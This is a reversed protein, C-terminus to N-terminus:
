SCVSAGPDRIFMSVCRVIWLDEVTTTPHKYGNMTEKWEHYGSDCLTMYGTLKTYTGTGDPVCTDWKCDKFLTDHCM